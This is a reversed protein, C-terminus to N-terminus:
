RCILGGRTKDTTPATHARRVLYGVRREWELTGATQRGTANHGHNPPGRRSIRHPVVPTTTASTSRWHRPDRAGTAEGDHPSPAHSPNTALGQDRADHVDKNRKNQGRRNREEGQHPKRGSIFKKGAPTDSPSARPESATPAPRQPHADLGNTYRPFRHTPRMVSLRGSSQPPLKKGGADTYCLRTRGYRGLQHVHTTRM